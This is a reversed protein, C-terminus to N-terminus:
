DLLIIEVREKKRGINKRKLAIQGIESTTRLHTGGCPVRAFEEVEWYRRQTPKDSFDSIIKKDEVILQEVQQLLQPFITSINQQWTFDVRAKDEAIHAGIKEIGQLIKYVNELIVEAAFHLRMLRYRRSWDIKMVVEDTERLGHGEVLTYTIDHGNKRAQLVPIDNIMGHDSEQGGSFAYFITENFTLQDGDVTNVRTKLETLYPDTWFVKETM